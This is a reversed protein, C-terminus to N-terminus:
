TSQSAKMWHVIISSFFSIFSLSRLELNIPQSFIKMDSSYKENIKELSHSNEKDVRCITEIKGGKKKYQVM